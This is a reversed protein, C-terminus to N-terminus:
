RQQRKQWTAVVSFEDALKGYLRQFLSMREQYLRYNAPNPVHRDVRAVAARAAALSDVAGLSWLGLVAAGWCSSEYNDPITVVKGFVDAMIQRWLLSRTFGGNARVEAFPGALQELVLAVNYMQLMVGELAARVWHRHNHHMALGFMVARADENWYPAREGMLFPLFLLGDAGPQVSGALESLEAYADAGDEQGLHAALQERLWRLVIGGSNVAGGIVWLDETLAYCFTRGEPDTLPRDVVARVAGSTGITAALVGPEVAYVGLNALVGDGAGLVFAVDEPLGLSEAWKRPLGTLACTTPRLASLQEAQIGAAALAEADWQRTHLNWLGTASAMSEDVVYEGFLKYFVYEKQSIFKGAQAFVEPHEERLWCIKALPAMAHVPTGTHQYLAPGLRRRLDAAQRQARSDAWTYCPTLRQGRRDMVIVSHMASSFAVGRIQARPVRAAQVAGALAQVVAAFIEDPDQEAAAPVTTYLPYAVTAKALARGRQDFVIAKTSTTGIDVGIVYTEGGRTM